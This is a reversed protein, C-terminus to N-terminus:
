PIKELHIQYRNRERSKMSLGVGLGVGVGVAVLAHVVAIMVVLRKWGGRRSIHRNHRLDELNEGKPGKVDRYDPIEENYKPAKDGDSGYGPPFGLHFMRQLPRNFARPPLDPAVSAEDESIAGLRPPIHSPSSRSRRRPSPSSSSPSKPQFTYLSADM